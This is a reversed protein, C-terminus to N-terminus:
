HITYFGTPLLESTFGPHLLDSRKVMLLDHRNLNRSASSFGLDIDDLLVCVVDDEDIDVIVCPKFGEITELSAYGGIQCHFVPKPDPKQQLLGPAVYATGFGAAAVVNIIQIVAPDSLDVRLTEAIPLNLCQRRYNVLNLFLSIDDENWELMEDQGARTSDSSFSLISTEITLNKQESAELCPVVMSVACFGESSQASLRWLFPFEGDYDIM